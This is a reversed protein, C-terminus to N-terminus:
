GQPPRRDGAPFALLLAREPPTEGERLSNERAVWSSPYRFTYEAEGERELSDYYRFGKSAELQPLGYAGLISNVVTTGDAGGFNSALGGLVLPSVVGRLLVGRRSTSTVPPAGERRSSFHVLANLRLYLLGEIEM